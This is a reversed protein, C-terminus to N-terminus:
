DSLLYQGQATPQPEAGSVVALKLGAQVYRGIRRSYLLGAIPTEVRVPVAQEELPYVTAISQGAEVWQGPQVQFTVVGAVPAKLRVLGQLPHVAAGTPQVKSLSGEVIGRAIMFAFLAGADQRALKEGVDAQGRLEITTAVFDTPVPVDPFAAALQTWIGSCAEDFPEGGSIDALLVLPCELLDVLDQLEPWVSPTTYLHLIAEDDCHLDFVFDADIAHTFLAHRMSDVASVPKQEALIQRCQSRILERNQESDTGLKGDLFSVLQPYLDPYQRNFNIGDSANFRGQLSGFSFQGLGIPNAVPALIIHGSIKGEADAADLLKELERM